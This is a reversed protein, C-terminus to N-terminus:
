APFNGMGQRLLNEENNQSLKENSIKTMLKEDWIVSWIRDFNNTLSIFFFFHKDYISCQM